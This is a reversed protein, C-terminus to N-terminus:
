LEGDLSVEENLDGLASKFLYESPLFRLRLIQIQSKFKLYRLAVRGLRKTRSM